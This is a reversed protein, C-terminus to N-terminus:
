KISELEHEKRLPYPHYYSYFKGSRGQETERRSAEERVLHLKDMLLVILM